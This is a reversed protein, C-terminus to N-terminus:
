REFGLSRAKEFCRYEDAERGHKSYWFSLEAWAEAKPPAGYLRRKPNDLMMQNALDFAAKENGESLYIDELPGSSMTAVVSKRDEQMVQVFCGKAAEDNGASHYIHGLTYLDMNGFSSKFGESRRREIQKKQYAVGQSFAFNAQTAKDKDKYILGLSEWAQPQDPNLKVARRYAEVAEDSSGIAEYVDGLKAHAVGSNPYKAVLTKAANLVKGWDAQKHSAVAADAAFHAQEAASYEPSELVALEDAEADLANASVAILALVGAAAFVCNQSVRSVFIEKIL